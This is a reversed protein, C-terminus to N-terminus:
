MWCMFGSGPLRARKKWSKKAANNALENKWHTEIQGTFNGFLLIIQHGLEQFERLKHVVVM